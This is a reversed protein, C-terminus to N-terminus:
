ARRGAGPCLRGDAGSRRRQHGAPAADPRHRGGAVGICLALLTRFRAGRRCRGRRGALVDLDAFQLDNEGGSYEDGVNRGGVLTAVGDVTLSKNHMRRNLRGFDALYNLMRSSRLRFPNFLRVAAMPQRDLDILAADLGWSGNDDLLLRVRVGRKAAAVLEDLVMQGAADNRVIYYQMDINQRASRLMMVRLALAFAGDEIVLVSSLGPRPPPGPPVLGAAREATDPLPPDAPHRPM